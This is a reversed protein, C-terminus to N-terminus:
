KGGKGGYNRWLADHATNNCRKRYRGSWLISYIILLVVAGIISIIVFKGTYSASSQQTVSAFFAQLHQVEDETVNRRSFVSGMVPVGEDNIWNVDIFYPNDEWVKTLNPGLSGGGLAGLSDGASHCSICPPGGNEFSQGGTFLAKGAAVDGSGATEALVVAPSSAVFLFVAALVSM